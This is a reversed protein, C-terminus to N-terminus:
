LKWPSRYSNGIMRNAEEDGPFTHTAYDYTVKRGLKYAINGVIPLTVVHVGIEVDAVPRRGARISAFWNLRHRETPDVGEVPELYANYGSSPPTYNVAKDEVKAGGDGGYVILNDTTGFYEAGWNDKPFKPNEKEPQNWVLTWDPNEFNWEVRMTQPTDWLGTVKPTGTASCTVKGKYDDNGTLMSVVNIAHNGRDRIFGEGIDMMWRFNFHARLPHYDIWRSPGVWMDWDLGSPVPTPAYTIDTSFNMPHWIEVRKVRGIQGNRVYNAAQIVPPNSRGQMGIQVARNYKRAANVMAQGEEITKCTPKESYVHKGAQCAMVTMIAHWHDPT